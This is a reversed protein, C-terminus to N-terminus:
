KLKKKVEALEQQAEKKYLHCKSTIVPADLCAQFELAAEKYKDQALLARGLELHHNGYEPKIEVAQRLSKESEEFSGKPIGGYLLGGMLRKVGGIEAMRRHWRGLAHHALDNRPDFAIAKDIYGRVEKSMKVQEKKGLLLLRKGMAASLQFFGWTDRANAKVAKRAYDEGNQYYSMQQERLDKLAQDLRDGLDVYARATKWLATYHNPDIKLAELYQELASKDDFQAYFEDGKLILEPATQSFAPAVFALAAAAAIARLIIKKNM